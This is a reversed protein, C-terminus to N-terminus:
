FLPHGSLGFETRGYGLLNDNYIQGVHVKVMFLDRVAIELPDGTYCATGGMLELVEETLACAERCVWSRWANARNREIDTALPMNAADWDELQQVYREHLAEIAAARTLMEGVNRQAVPSEWEKVGYLLRQRERVRHKFDTVVRQTVGVAIAGFGICFMQMFPMRYIPTDPAWDGGVPQNKLKVQLLPLIRRWPVFVSEVKVGHSGTGRLGLTNWNRIVELEGTNVTVLCPQPTDFGPVDVIAGLGIWEDWLVGSAFNWTGSLNVGGDVYEVKGVPFFVDAVFGDSAYIEERGAPELYAVWQEHLITFYILWAASANYRAVTRVIESFTRAGMAFGGYRKPRLVKHFQAEHVLDRLKLSFCANREAEAIELEAQQGLFEARAVLEDHTVQQQSM